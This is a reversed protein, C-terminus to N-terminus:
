AFGTKLFDFVRKDRLLNLGFTALILLGAAEATYIAPDTQMNEHLTSIWEWWDVYSGKRFSWGHFPWYLTQTNRWMGDLILHWGSALALVLFGTKRSRWWRYSGFLFLILFFLLTHAFIRGSNHFTEALFIHGLPKDIIDPLMSGLLVLRYDIKRITTALAQSHARNNLPPIHKSLGKDWAFALGFTIGTHAFLLM